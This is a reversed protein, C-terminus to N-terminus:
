YGEMPDSVGAFQCKVLAKGEVVNDVVGVYIGMKRIKGIEVEQAKTPKEGRRKFEVMFVGRGNPLIFLRDPVSRQSPSTFKYVLIGLSKAFSCVAKEIDKELPNPTKMRTFTEHVVPVGM